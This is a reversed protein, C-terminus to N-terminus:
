EVSHDLPWKRGYRCESLSPVVVGCKLKSASGGSKLAFRISLRHLLPWPTRTLWHLSTSGFATGDKPQPSRPGPGFFDSRGVTNPTPFILLLGTCYTKQRRTHRPKPNWNQVHVRESTVCRRRGAARLRQGRARGRAARAPAPRPVSEGPDRIDARPRRPHVRITTDLHRSTAASM